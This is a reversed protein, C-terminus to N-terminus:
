NRVGKAVLLLNFTMLHESSASATTWLHETFFLTKLFKVFNVLFCRHWPRKKSLTAPPFTTLKEPGKQATIKTFVSQDLTNLGRDFM